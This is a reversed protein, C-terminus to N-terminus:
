LDADSSVLQVLLAGDRGTGAVEISALKAHVFPAASKACEIRKDWPKKPDRMIRLLFALPTEGTAAVEAQIAQTKKNPVGAKRGGTKKRSPDVKNM